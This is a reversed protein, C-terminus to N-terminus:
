KDTDWRFGWFKLKGFGFMLRFILLRFYFPILPSPLERVGLQTFGGVLPPLMASVFAVEFMFGDWINRLVIRRDPQNAADISLFLAYSTGLLFPSYSSGLACGLGCLAGLIPVIQILWDATSLWFLSPWWWWFTLPFDRRKAAM